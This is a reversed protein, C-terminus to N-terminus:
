RLLMENENGTQTATTASPIPHSPSAAFQMGPTGIGAHVFFSPAAPHVSPDSANSPAMTRCCTVEYTKAKGMYVDVNINTCYVSEWM